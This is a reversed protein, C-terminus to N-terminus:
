LKIIWQYRFAWRWKIQSKLQLRNSFRVLEDKKFARKISTLGDEKVMKNSIFLGLGQFLLYALKSRQLDNIVIGITTNQQFIELLKIIEEDKFHHLFLTALMIDCNMNKFAESFVDECLFSINPHNISLENAYNVADLNADVGLLELRYGNKKAWKAILRLMDGHGCGLDIIHYIQDKPKDILLNAVGNVTICNGGLWKNINGLKNLTDRLTEGELKFDDMLEIEDSRYTTDILM